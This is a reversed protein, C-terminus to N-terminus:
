ANHVGRLIFVLSVVFGISVPLCFVYYFWIWTGAWISPFWLFIMLIFSVIYQGVMTVLTYAQGIIPISQIATMNTVNPSMVSNLWAMQTTTIGANQEIISSGFICAIFLCAWGIIFSTKM